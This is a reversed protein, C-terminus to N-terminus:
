FPEEPYVVKWDEAQAVLFESVARCRELTDCLKEEGLM